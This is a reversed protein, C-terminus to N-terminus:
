TFCSALLSPPWPKPKSAFSIDVVPCCSCCFSLVSTASSTFLSLVSTASSTPLLVLLVRDPTTLPDAWFSFSSLGVFSSCLPPSSATAFSFSIAIVFLPSPSLSSSCPSVSTSSSSSFFFSVTAGVVVCDDMAHEVLVLLASLSSFSIAPPSTAPVLFLVTTATASTAMVSLALSSFSPVSSSSSFTAGGDRDDMAFDRLVLFAAFFFFSSLSLESSSASASCTPATVVFLSLRLATKPASLFRFTTVLFVFISSSESASASASASLILPSSDNTTTASALGDSLFRLLPPSPLPCFAVAAASTGRTACGNPRM